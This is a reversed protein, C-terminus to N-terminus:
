RWRGAKRKWGSSDNRSEERNWNWSESMRNHWRRAGSFFNSEGWVMSAGLRDAWGGASYTIIKKIM